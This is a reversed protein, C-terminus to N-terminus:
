HSGDLITYTITSNTASLVKIRMAKFAIESSEDLDYVLDQTFAPRAMNDFFERYSFKITSGSRGNYLLESTSSGFDVIASDIEFLKRPEPLRLSAGAWCNKFGLATGASDVVVCHPYVAGKMVECLLDDNTDTFRCPYTAGVQINYTAGITEHTFDELAHVAPLKNVHGKVYLPSGVTVTQTVGTKIQLSEMTPTIMKPPGCAALMVLLVAILILRKM